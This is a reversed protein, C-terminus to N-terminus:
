LEAILDIEQKFYAEQTPYFRVALTTLLSLRPNRGWNIADGIVAPNVASCASEFGRATSENPSIICLALSCLVRHLVTPVNNGQQMVLSLLSRRPPEAWRTLLAAAAAACETAADGAEAAFACARSVRGALCIWTSIIVANEVFDIDAAALAVFAARLTDCRAPAAHARWAGYAAHARARACLAGVDRWPCASWRRGIEAWGGCEPAALVARATVDALVAFPELSTVSCVASACAARLPAPASSVWQQWVPLAASGAPEVCMIVIARSLLDEVENSSEDLYPAIATIVNLVASAHLPAHAVLAPAAAARQWASLARARKSRSLPRVSGAEEECPLLESASLLVRFQPAGHYSLNLNYHEMFYLALFESFGADPLCHWPLSCAQSLTREVYPVSPATFIYLLLGLQTEMELRNDYLASAARFGRLSCEFWSRIEIDPARCIELATRTHKPRFWDQGFPLQQLARLLAWLQQRHSEDRLRGDSLRSVYEECVWEWVEGLLYEEIGPCDLMTQLLSGLFKDLVNEFQCVQQPQLVWPQWAARAASWVCACVREPTYSQAMAAAVYARVLEVLLDTVYPAHLMHALYPVATNPVSSWLTALDYLLAPLKTLPVCHAHSTFSPVVYKWHEPPLRRDLSLQTCRAIYSTINENTLLSMTHVGILEILVFHEKEPQFGWRCVAECLETLVVNRAEFSVQAAWHSIEFRSLYSFIVHSPLQSRLLATYVAPFDAPRLRRPELITGCIAQQLTNGSKEAGESWRTLLSACLEGEHCIWKAAIHQSMPLLCRAPWCGGCAMVGGWVRELVRLATPKSGISRALAQLIVAARVVPWSPKTLRRMSAQASRRNEIIGQEAGTSICWERAEPVLTRPRCSNACRVRQAALARPERLARVLSLLSENLCQVRSVEKRWQEAFKEILKMHKDVHSLLVSADAVNTDGLASSLKVTRKRQSSKDRIMLINDVVTQFLTPAAPPPPPPPRPLPLECCETNRRRSAVVRRFASDLAQEPIFRAIDAEHPLARVKEGECLWRYYERIMKEAGSHYSYMHAISEDEDRSTEEVIVEEGEEEESESDSSEISDNTFDTISLVGLFEESLTTNTVVNDPTSVTSETKTQDEQPNRYSIAQNHHYAITEQLQRKISALTRSKMIGSFFLPGVPPTSEPLSCRQLYLAMFLRWLMLHSPHQLPALLAAACTLHIVLSDSKMGSGIQQLAADVNIKVKDLRQTHLTQLLRDSLIGNQEYALMARLMCEIVQPAVTVCKLWQSLQEKPMEQVLRAAYETALDFERTVLIATDLLNAFASTQPRWLAHFWTSLMMRRNLQYEAPDAQDGLHALMVGQLLRAGSAGGLGLARQVLSPGTNLMINFFTEFKNALSISDPSAAMALLVVSLCHAADVPRSKALLCLAEAGHSCILPVSHGWSSTLLNVAAAFLDTEESPEPAPADLPLSWSARHLRLKRLVTWKWECNPQSRSWDRLWRALSVQCELSLNCHSALLVLLRELMCSCRQSWDGLVALLEATTPRWKDVHIHNVCTPEVSEVQNMDAILNLATTYLYPHSALVAPIRTRAAAECGGKCSVSKTKLGTQMLFELVIRALEHDRTRQAAAESIIHVRAECTLKPLCVPLSNLHQPSTEHLHFILEMCFSSATADTLLSAPMLHLDRDECLWLAAAYSAELEAPVSRRMEPSYSSENHIHLGALGKLLRQAINRMFAHLRRYHAHAAHARRLAALLARAGCCALAVGGGGSADRWDREFAESVDSHTFMLTAAVLQRLPLARLLALLDRERLAGDDVAGGRGGADVEEWAEVTDENCELASELPPRTLLISLVAVARAASLRDGVHLKVARSAWRVSRSQKFLHHLLFLLQRPDRADVLESALMAAWRELLKSLVPPATDSRKLAQLILSLSERMEKQNAKVVESLFDEIQYFALLASHQHHCYGEQVDNLLATLRMRAAPVKEAFFEADDYKGRFQVSAGCPCIDTVHVTKKQIKWLASRCQEEENISKFLHNRERELFMLSSRLTSLLDVLPHDPGSLPGAEVIAEENDSMKRIEEMEEGGFLWVAKELPMCQPRPIEEKVVILEQHKPEPQSMDEFVPASPVVNEETLLTAEAEQAESTIDSDKTNPQFCWPPPLLKDEVNLPIEQTPIKMREMKLNLDEYTKGPHEEILSKSIYTDIHKSSFSEKVEVSSTAISLSIDLNQSQSVTEECVNQLDSTVNTSIHNDTSSGAEGHTESINVSDVFYETTDIPNDSNELKKTKNITPSILPESIVFERSETKQKAKKKERKKEKVMTAM